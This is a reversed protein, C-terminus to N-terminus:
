KKAELKLDDLFFPGETSILVPSGDLNEVIPKNFSLNSMKGLNEFTKGKKGDIIKLTGFRGTVYSAIDSITLFECKIPLDLSRARGGESVYILESERLLFSEKGLKWDSLNECAFSAIIKKGKIMLFHSETLIIFKDDVAKVDLIEEALPLTALIDKNKAIEIRKRISLEKPPPSIGADWSLEGEESIKNKPNEQCSILGEQSRDALLARAATAYVKEAELKPSLLILRDEKCLILSEDSLCKIWLGGLDRDALKQGSDLDYSIIRGSKTLIYLNDYTYEIKKYDAPLKLTYVERNGEKAYFTNGETYFLINGKLICNNYSQNITLDKTSGQRVAFLYISVLLLLIAILSSVIAPNFYRTKEEKDM